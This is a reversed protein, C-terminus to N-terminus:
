PKRYGKSADDLVLVWDNNVGSSPPTFKRNGNKAFTGVLASKAARPNYWRATIKTGSLKNLNVTVPKGSATYVFAYSGDSARTAQIRDAAGYTTGVIMSQDPMRTLMPRSLMLRKIYKMSYAGMSYLADQWKMTALNRKSGPSKVFQWVNNNGYSVGFSGAFLSAYEAKRVDYDTLRQNGKVIGSPIDEYGPEIDLVPKQPNRGYDAAVMDYNARNLAQGSQIGNFDLWSDKQFWQSSSQAFTPHYTMLVKSEDRQAAGRAVGAAMNRWMDVGDGQNGAVDGGMVWVIKADAYRRGLFRGFQYVNLKNFIGNASWESDLPVLAVYMGLANARRISYDMNEFFAQNPRTVNGKIFASDGYVDGFRANIEAQIVTFGQAARTELYQDAEARTTKNFLHWATDAMYFFPSGDPNVLFRHNASVELHNAPEAVSRSREVASPDRRWGHVAHTDNPSTSSLLTRNELLEFMSQMM